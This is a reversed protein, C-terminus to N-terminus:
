FQGKWGMKRMATRLDDRANRVLQIITENTTEPQLVLSLNREVNNYLFCLETAREIQIAKREIWSKIATLLSWTGASIAIVSDWPFGYPHTLIGSVIGLALLLIGAFILPRVTKVKV